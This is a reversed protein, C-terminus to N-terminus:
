GFAPVAFRNKGAVFPESDARFERHIETLFSPPLVVM